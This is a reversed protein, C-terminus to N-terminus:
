RLRNLLKIAGIGVGFLMVIVGYLSSISSGSSFSQSISNAAYAHPTAASALATLSGSNYAGYFLIGFIAVASIIIAPWNTYKFKSYGIAAVGVFLYTSVGGVMILLQIVALTPQNLALFLLSNLVFLVSIAAAIHLINRFLLVSISSALALLGLILVIFYVM